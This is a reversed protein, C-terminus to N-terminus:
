LGYNVTRYLIVVLGLITCIVNIWRRKNEKETALAFNLSTTAMLIIVDIPILM